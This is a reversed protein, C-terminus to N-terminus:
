LISVKTNNLSPSFWLLHFLAVLIPLLIFILVHVDILYQLRILTMLLTSPEAAQKLCGPTNQFWLHFRHKILTFCPQPSAHIQIYHMIHSALPKYSLRKCNWSPHYHPEFSLRTSHSSTLRKAVASSNSVTVVLSRRCLHIVINRKLCCKTRWGFQLKKIDNWIDCPKNSMRCLKKHVPILTATSFILPFATESTKINCTTTISSCCTCWSELKVFHRNGFVSKLMRFASSLDIIGNYFSTTWIIYNYAHAWLTFTLTVCGPRFWHDLGRVLMLCGHTSILPVLLHSLWKTFFHSFRSRHYSLFLLSLHSPVCHPLRISAKQARKTSCITLGLRTWVNTVMWTEIPRLWITFHIQSYIKSDSTYSLQTHPYTDPTTELTQVFNKKPIHVLTRSLWRGWVDSCPTNM